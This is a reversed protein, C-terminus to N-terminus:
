SFKGARFFGQNRAHIGTLLFILRPCKIFIEEMLPCQRWYLYNLKTTVQAYNKSGGDWCRGCGVAMKNESKVIKIKIRNTQTLSSKQQQISKSVLGQHPKEVVVLTTNYHSYFLIYPHYRNKFQALLLQVNVLNTIANTGTTTFYPQTPPQETKKMWFRRSM